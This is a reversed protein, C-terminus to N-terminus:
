IRDIRHEEIDPFPRKSIKDPAGDFTEVYERVEFSPEVAHYLNEYQHLTNIMDHPQVLQLSAQSMKARQKPHRALMSVMEGLVEGDGPPFLYGNSGPHVLEPLARARAALVPLGSAMAELTAISQLEVPSPMIFGDASHYLDPLDEAPVYGCLVVRRELGNAEIQERMHHKYNGDGAIAFQVGEGVLKRAAKVLTDLGKERDVRGVYLFISRSPDLHYRQLISNRHNAREPNFRSLEVGCSIACVPAVLGNHLMIEVASQTPAVVHDLQNYIVTVRKWFFSHLLRRGVTLDSML